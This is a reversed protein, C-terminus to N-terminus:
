VAKRKSLCEQVHARQDSRLTQLVDSPIVLNMAVAGRVLEDSSLTLERLDGRSSKADKAARFALHHLNLPDLGDM